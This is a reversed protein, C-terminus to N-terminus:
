RKPASAYPFNGNYNVFEPPITEGFAFTTTTGAPCAYEWEAETPLRYRRGTARSLGRACFEIAEQWSVEIM